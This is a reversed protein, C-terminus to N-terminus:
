NQRCMLNVDTHNIMVRGMHGTYMCGVEQLHVFGGRVKGAEHRQEQMQELYTRGRQKNIELRMKINCGERLGGQGTM